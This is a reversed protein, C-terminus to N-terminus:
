RRRSRTWTAGKRVRLRACPRPLPASAACPSRIARRASTAKNLVARVAPPLKDVDTVNCVDLITRLFLERVQYNLDKNTKSRIFFPNTFGKIEDGEKVVIKRPAGNLGLIGPGTESEDIRVLTDQTLGEGKAFQVFANFQASYQNTELNIAM